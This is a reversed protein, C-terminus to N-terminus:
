ILSLFLELCSIEFAGFSFPKKSRVLDFSFCDINRNVFSNSKGKNSRKVLSIHRWKFSLFDKIKPTNKTNKSSLKIGKKTVESMKPWKNPIYLSM